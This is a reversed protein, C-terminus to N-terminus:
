TRDAVGHFQRYMPSEYFKKGYYQLMDHPDKLTKSINSSIYVGDKLTKESMVLQNEGGNRRVHEIIWQSDASNNACIVVLMADRTSSIARSRKAFDLVVDKQAVVDLLPAEDLVVFANGMRVGFAVFKGPIVCLFVHRTSM